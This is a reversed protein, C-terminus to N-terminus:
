YPYRWEWKKGEKLKGIVQECFEKNEDVALERAAEAQKIAGEDDEQMKLLYAYALEVSWNSENSLSRAQEIQEIAKSITKPTVKNKGVMTLALLKRAGVEEEGQKILMQLSNEVNGWEKIRSDMMAKYWRVMPDDKALKMAKGMDLKGKKLQDTETLLDARAALAVYSYPGENEIIDDLIKKAAELSGMRRLLLAKAFIASANETSAKELEDIVETNERNSYFGTPDTIDWYKPFSNAAEEVIQNYQNGLEQYDQLATLHRQVIEQAAISLGVLQDNRIRIEMSSLLANQQAWATAGSIRRPRGTKPDRYLNPDNLMQMTQDGILAARMQAMSAQVAQNQVMVMERETKQITDQAKKAQDRIAEVKKGLEAFEGVLKRAEVVRPPTKTDKSNDPKDGTKGNGPKGVGPDQANLPSPALLSCWILLLLSARSAM